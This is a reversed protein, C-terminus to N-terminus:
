TGGGLEAPLDSREAWETWSGDYWRAGQQGLLCRLVFWSESATHGTRCSVVVTRGDLLSLGGYDALLSDRGKFFVGDQRVELDRQWPRHIAGPIHGPRAETSEVGDFFGRPRVDLVTTGGDALRQALADVAITFDDQDEAVFEVAKAPTAEPSLPLRLAAWRRIGGDLIALQRNGARMLALALLTADQAKDDAVIVVEDTRALGAEGFAQALETASRLMLQRDGHRLRLARLDLHVSGPIHLEDFEAQPRVDVLKVQQGRAMTWAPSVVCCGALREPDSAWGSGERGLGVGFFWNARLRFAPLRAAATAPDLDAALSPPTLVQQKFAELGGDLVRVNQHGRRRLEVWVQAPHAPGNSYLVLLRPGQRLLAEGAPGAAEPATMCVAGPLCFAAHEERPRLDVLAIEGPHAMLEAALELPGIHDAGTEIDNLWSPSEAQRMPAEVAGGIALVFVLLAAMALLAVAQKQGDQMTMIRAEQNTPEM